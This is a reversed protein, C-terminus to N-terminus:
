LTIKRAKKRPEVRNVTACRLCIYVSNNWRDTRDLKMHNWYAHCNRCPGYREIFEEAEPREADEEEPDDLNIIVANESGCIMCVMVPRGWGDKGDERMSQWGSNCKRCPNGVEIANQSNPLGADMEQERYDAWPHNVRLKQFEAQLEKQRTIETEANQLRDLLKWPCHSSRGTDAEGAGERDRLDKLTRFSMRMQQAIQNRSFRQELEGIRQHLRATAGRYTEEEPYQKLRLYVRIYIAVKHVLNEDGPRNTMPWSNIRWARCTKPTIGIEEAAESFYFMPLERKALLGALMNAQEVMTREMYQDLQKEFQFLSLQHSSGSEHQMM